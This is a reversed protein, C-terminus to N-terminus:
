PSYRGAVVVAANAHLSALFFVTLFPLSPPEHQLVVRKCVFVLCGFCSRGGAWCVTARVALGDMCFAPKRTCVCADFMYKELALAAQGVARRSVVAPSPGKSARGAKSKMYRVGGVGWGLEPCRWPGRVLGIDKQCINKLSGGAITFYSLDLFNYRLM